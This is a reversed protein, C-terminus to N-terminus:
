EGTFTERVTAHSGCASPDGHACARALLDQLQAPTAGDLLGRELELALIRCPFGGLDACTRELAARGLVRDDGADREIRLRGDMGCAFHDGVECSRAFIRRACEYADADPRDFWTAAAFNTCANALGMGCGRRDLERAEDATAPDREIVRARAWCAVADRAGCPPACAAPADM